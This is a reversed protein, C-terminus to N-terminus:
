NEPLELPDLFSAIAHIPNVWKLGANRKMYFSTMQKASCFLDSAEIHFAISPQFPNFRDRNM